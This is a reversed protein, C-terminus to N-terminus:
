LKSLRVHAAMDTHMSIADLIGARWQLRCCPVTYQFAHHLGNRRSCPRGSADSRGMPVRHAAETLM